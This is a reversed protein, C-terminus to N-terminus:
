LYLRAKMILRIAVQNRSMHDPIFIKVDNSIKAYIINRKRSNQLKSFIFNWNQHEYFWRASWLFSLHNKHRKIIAITKYRLSQILKVNASTYDVSQKKIRQAVKLHQANFCSFCCIENKLDKNHGLQSYVWDVLKAPSRQIVVLCRLQSTILLVELDKKKIERLHM